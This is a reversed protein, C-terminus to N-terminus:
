TLRPNALRTSEEIELLGLFPVYDPCDLLDVGFVDPWVEERGAWSRRRQGREASM